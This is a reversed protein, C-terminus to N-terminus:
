IPSTNLRGYAGRRRQTGFGGVHYNVIADYTHAAPIGTKGAKRHWIVADLVATRGGETVTYSGGAYFSGVLGANTAYAASPTGDALVDSAPPFPLYIRGRYARGAKATGWSLVGAVQEPVANPGTTGGGFSNNNYQTLAVPLPWIKQAGVGRYTAPNVILNRILPGMIGDFSTALDADTAPPLGVASVLFHFNNISVQALHQCYLKVLMIDGVAMAEAM